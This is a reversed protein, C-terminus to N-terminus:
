RPRLWRFLSIAALGPLGLGLVVELFAIAFADTTNEDRHFQERALDEGTLRPDIPFNRGMESAFQQGAISGIALVVATYVLLPHNVVWAFLGRSRKDM